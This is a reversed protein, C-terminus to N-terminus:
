AIFLEALSKRIFNIQETNNTQMTPIRYILKSKQRFFGFRNESFHQLIRRFTTVNLKISYFANSDTAPM